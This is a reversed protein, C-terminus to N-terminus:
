SAVQTRTQRELRGKRDFVHEIKITGKSEASITQGRTVLGDSSYEYTSEWDKKGNLYKTFKELQGKSNFFAVYYSSRGSQLAEAASLERTPEEPLSKTKFSAYYYPGGIKPEKAWCSAALVAIFIVLLRAPNM